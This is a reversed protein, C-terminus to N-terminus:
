GTPAVITGDYDVPEEAPAPKRKRHLVRWALLLTGGILATLPYLRNM